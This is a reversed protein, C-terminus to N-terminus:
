SVERGSARITIASGTGALTTISDGVRLVHGTVEPCLYTDGAAISKASIVTNSTSGASGGTVLFVTLAAAAGTTNTASMKDIITSVSVPVTYQAVATIEAQKPAILVKLIVAM